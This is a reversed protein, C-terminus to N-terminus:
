VALCTHLCVKCICLINHLFTALIKKGHFTRFRHGTPLPKGDKFWEVVMNPDEAPTLRAELHTSQGESVSYAESSFPTQFKPPEAKGLVGADKDKDEAVSILSTIVKV